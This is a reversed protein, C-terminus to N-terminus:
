RHGRNAKLLNVKATATTTTTTRQCVRWLLWLSVEKGAHRVQSTRSVAPLCCCISASSQLITSTLM